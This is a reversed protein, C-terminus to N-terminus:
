VDLELAAEEGEEKGEREGGAEEGRRFNARTALAEEGQLAVIAPIGAIAFPNV